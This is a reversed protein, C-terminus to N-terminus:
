GEAAGNTLDGLARSLDTRIRHATLKTKQAAWRPAHATLTAAPRSRKKTQSGSGAVKLVTDVLGLDAAQRATFYTENEMMGMVEAARMGSRAAYIEAIQGDLLELVEAVQRLGAANGMAIAWARHIMLVSNSRAEIRAGSMAIVSAISAALASIKVHVAGSYESLQNYIDMGDSVDGGKSNISVIVDRGGLEGLAADMAQPTIGDGLEAGILGKLTIEGSELNLKLM